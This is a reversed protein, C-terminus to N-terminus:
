NPFAFVARYLTDLAQSVKITGFSFNNLEVSAIGGIM